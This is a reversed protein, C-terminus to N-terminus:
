IRDIYVNELFDNMAKDSDRIFDKLAFNKQCNPCRMHVETCSREIDLKNNCDPCNIETHASRPAFYNM